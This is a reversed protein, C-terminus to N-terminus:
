QDLRQRLRVKGLAFELLKRQEDWVKEPRTFAPRHYEPDVAAEAYEELIRGIERLAEQAEEPLSGIDYMVM